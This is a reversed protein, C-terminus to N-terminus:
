FTSDMIFKTLEAIMYKQNKGGHASSTFNSDLMKNKELFEAIVTALVKAGAPKDKGAVQVSAESVTESENKPTVGTGAERTENQLFNCVEEIDDKSTAIHDVAWSHGDKLISDVQMPNLALIMEAHRKITELNGFFMYNETGNEGETVSEQISYKMLFSTAEKEFEKYKAPEEDKMMDKLERYFAIVELRDDCKMANTMDSSLDVDTYYAAIEVLERAIDQFSKKAENIFEYLPVIHKM